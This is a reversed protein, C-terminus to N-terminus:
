QSVGVRVAFGSDRCKDALCPSRSCVVAKHAPYNQFSSAISLDSFEPNLCLRTLCLTPLLIGWNGGSRDV